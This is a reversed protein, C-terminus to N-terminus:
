WSARRRGCRRASDGLVAGVVADENFGLGAGGLFEAEVVDIGHGVGGAFGGIAAGGDLVELVLRDREEFVLGEQGLLGLERRELNGSGKPPPRMCLRM